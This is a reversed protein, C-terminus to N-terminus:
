RRLEARFIEQEIGEWSADHVIGSLIINHGVQADDWTVYRVFKAYFEPRVDSLVMTEFLNPQSGGEPPALQYALFVTSVAVGGTKDVGIFRVENSYYLEWNEIVDAADRLYPVHKDDMVWMMKPYYALLTM